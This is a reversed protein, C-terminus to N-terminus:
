IKKFENEDLIFLSVIQSAKNQMFGIVLIHVPAIPLKRM